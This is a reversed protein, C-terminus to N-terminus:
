VGLTCNVDAIHKGTRKRKLTRPTLSRGVDTSPQFFAADLVYFGNKGIEGSRRTALYQRHRLEPIIKIKQRQGNLKLCIRCFM